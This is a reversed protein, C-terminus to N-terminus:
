RLVSVHGKIQKHGSPVDFEIIWNYIDQPVFYGMYGGDWYIRKENSQFVCCGWRDFIKIDVHFVNDYYVVEFGDNIGDGNPTFSNPVWVPYVPIVLVSDQASCGALDSVSFTYVTSDLPQASTQACTSCGLSTVPTWIGEEVNSVPNILASDPYEFYLISPLDLHPLPIVEIPWNVSDVCQLSDVGVIILEPSEFLVFGVSDFSSLLPQIPHWLYQEAGSTRVWATDGACIKIDGSVTLQPNDFLVFVSASGNGCANEMFVSFLTSQNISIFTNQENPSSCPNLPSWSWSAASEATLLLSDGACVFLDPYDNVGPPTPDVFVGVSDEVTCNDETTIFVQYLISNLPTCVPQSSLNNNLFQSPLWTYGVGGSAGLTVSEGLCLTTDDIVWTNVDYVIV